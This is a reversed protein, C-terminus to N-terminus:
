ALPPPKIPVFIVPWCMTREGPGPQFPSHVQTRQDKPGMALFFPSDLRCQTPLLRDSRLLFGSSLFHSSLPLSVSPRLCSRPLVPPVLLPRRGPTARQRQFRSPLLFARGQWSGWLSRFNESDYHPCRGRNYEEWLSPLIDDSVTGTTSGQGLTQPVSHHGFCWSPSLSNRSLSM